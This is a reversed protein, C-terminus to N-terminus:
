AVVAALAPLKVDHVGAATDGGMGSAFADVPAPMDLAVTKRNGAVHKRTPPYQVVCCFGIGRVFLQWERLTQDHRHSCAFGGATVLAALLRRRKQDMALLFPRREIQADIVVGIRQGLESAELLDAALSPHM